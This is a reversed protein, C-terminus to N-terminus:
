DYIPGNATTGHKSPPPQHDPPTDLATAYAGAPVPAPRIGTGGGPWHPGYETGTIRGFADVPWTALHLLEAWCAVLILTVRDQRATM